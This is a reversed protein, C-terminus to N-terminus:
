RWESSLPEARGARPRGGLAGTSPLTALALWDIGASPRDITESHAISPPPKDAPYQRDAHTQSDPGRGEDEYRRAHHEETYSGHLEESTRGEARRVLGALPQEPAM